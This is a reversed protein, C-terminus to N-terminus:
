GEKKVSKLRALCEEAKKHMSAFDPHQNFNQLIEVMRTLDMDNPSMEFLVTHKQFILRPEEVSEWRGPNGSRVKMASIYTDWSSATKPSKEAALRNLVYERYLDPVSDLTWDGEKKNRFLGGLGYQRLPPADGVRLGVLFFGRIQAYGLTQKELWGPWAPNKEAPEQGTVSRFAFRLMECYALCALSAEYRYLETIEARESKDKGPRLHQFLQQPPDPVKGGNAEFFEVASQSSGVARGLDTGFQSILSKGTEDHRSKSGKLANELADLTTQSRLHGPAVLAIGAVM